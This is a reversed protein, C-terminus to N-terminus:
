AATAKAREARRNPASSGESGNALPARIKLLGKALQATVGTPDIAQPMPQRCFMTRAETGDASTSSGEILLELPFATVNIESAAFGDVKASVVVRKPDKEVNTEPFTLLEREAQLWDETHDGHAGGRAEFISFARRRVADLFGNLYAYPRVGTVKNAVGQYVSVQAM